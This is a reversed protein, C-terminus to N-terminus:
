QVCQNSISVSVSFHNMETASDAPLRALQRREASQPSSSSTPLSTEAASSRHQNDVTHRESHLNGATLPLHWEATAELTLVPRRDLM